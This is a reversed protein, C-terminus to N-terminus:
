SRNRQIIYSKGWIATQLYVCYVPYTFFVFLLLAHVSIIAVTNQWKIPQLFRVGLYKDLWHTVLLGLKSQTRYSKPVYNDSTKDEYEPVQGEKLVYKDNSLECREVQARRNGGSVM